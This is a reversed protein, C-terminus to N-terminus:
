RFFDDLRRSNGPSHRQAPWVSRAYVATGPILPTGAPRCAFKQFISHKAVQDYQSAFVLQQDKFGYFLPKIGAFDRILHCKRERTDYLAIAFM